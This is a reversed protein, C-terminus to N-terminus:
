CLQYSGYGQWINFTNHLSGSHLNLRVPAWLANSLNQPLFTSIHDRAIRPDDVTPVERLMHHVLKGGPIRVKSRVEFSSTAICPCWTLVALALCLMNCIDLSSVIPSQTNFVPVMWANNGIHCSGQADDGAHCSCALITALIDAAFSVRM